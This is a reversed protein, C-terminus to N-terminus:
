RGALQAKINKDLFAQTYKIFRRNVITEGIKEINFRGTYSPKDTTAFFFPLLRNGDRKYVGPRFSHNRPTGIFFGGKKALSLGRTIKKLQAQTVNGSDNIKVHPGPVFYSNSKITGDNPVKHLFFGEYGKQPRRGGKVGFRLYRARDKGRKDQAYISAKLKRKTSKTVLFAKQTFRVPKDFASITGKNLGERVEFATKNIGQSLSFPLQKQSAEAWAIAKRFDGVQKISLM